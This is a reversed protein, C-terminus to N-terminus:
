EAAIQRLQASRGSAYARVADGFAAFLRASASDSRVWYEPHWQVGVAFAKAGIVSVAEITGDAATAEIQLGPSLDAIGQLHLSNVQVDDSELIRGICGERVVQIRHSLGYRVDPGDGERFPYHHMRGELTQIQTHLSGGLAVNLEQYGRCIAFLPIGRELAARILPLTTADRAEDYPEYEPAPDVGYNAPHVNSRAGSLLVGDVRDLVDNVDILDGVSPLLVPIAKAGRVIAESYQAPTVHWRADDFDRNDTSILVVPMSSM